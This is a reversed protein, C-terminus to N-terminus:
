QEMAKRGHILFIAAFLKRRSVEDLTEQPEPEEDPGDRTASPGQSPRGPRARRRSRPPTRLEEHRVSLWAFVGVYHPAFVGPVLVTTLVLIEKVASKM